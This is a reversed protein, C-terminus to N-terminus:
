KARTPVAARYSKAVFGLQRVHEPLLRELAHAATGDLEGQEEGFLGELQDNDIIDVLTSTRYFAMSGAPYTNLRSADLKIGLKEAVGCISAMNEERETFHRIMSYNEPYLLGIAPNSMFMSIINVLVVESGITQQLLYKRWGDGWSVHPSKKTHLHLVVDSKRWIESSEILFPGIDRGRNKVVLVNVDRGYLIDSLNQRVADGDPESCVTVVLSFRVKIHRLRDLVEHLLDV